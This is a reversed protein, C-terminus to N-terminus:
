ARRRGPHARARLDRLGRRGGCERARASRSRGAGPGPFAAVAGQEEGGDGNGGGAARRALEVLADFAYAERAEKRGEARATKFLEDVIPDLVSRVLAGAEVTGRAHLNWAGERDRVGSAQTGSPDARADRRSGGGGAGGFVGSAGSRAAEEGRWGVAAGGGGSRGDGGVRDGGGEAAVVRGVAVHCGDGAAGRGAEVDGVGGAGGGGVHGVLEGVAGGGFPVRGAAM